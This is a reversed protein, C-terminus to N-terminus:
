LIEFEAMQFQLVVNSLTEQSSNRCPDRFHYGNKNKLGGQHGGVTKEGSLHGGVTKETKLVSVSAKNLTLRWNM